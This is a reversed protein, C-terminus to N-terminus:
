GSMMLRASENGQSIFCTEVVSQSCSFDVSKIAHGDLPRHFAEVFVALANLSFRGFLQSMGGAQPLCHMQDFYNATVRVM